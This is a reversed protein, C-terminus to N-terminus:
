GGGRCGEGGRLAGVQLIEIKRIALQDAICADLRHGLAAGGEVVEVHGAAGDGVEREFEESAVAAVQGVQPLPTPPPHVPSCFQM